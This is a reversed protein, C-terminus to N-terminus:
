DKNPNYEIANVLSGVKPTGSSASPFFNLTNPYLNNKLQGDYAAILHIAQLNSEKKNLVRGLSLDGYEKYSLELSNNEDFIEISIKEGM